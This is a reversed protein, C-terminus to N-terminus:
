ENKVGTKVIDRYDQPLAKTIANLKDKYKEHVEVTIEELYVVNKEKDVSTTIYIEYEDVGYNILVEKIQSRV